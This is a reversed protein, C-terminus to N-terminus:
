FFNSVNDINQTFAELNHDKTSQEQRHLDPASQVNMLTTSIVATMIMDLASPATALSHLHHEEHEKPQTSNHQVIVDSAKRANLSFAKLINMENIDYPKGNEELVDHFWTTDQAFKEAVHPWPLNTQTKGKVLGWQFWGVDFEQLIPLLNEYTSGCQRGMWETLLMPKGLVSTKQLISRLLKDNCYAHISIIDSLQMARQDIMHALPIVEDSEETFFPDPVHWASTTLPQMPNEERAWEFVLEMLHMANEELQLKQPIVKTGNKHFTWSNGPENYLDWILVRRDNGWTSVMDRVYKEVRHWQSTDLVIDRGPSGVAGGNHLGPFPGPQPGLQAPKGSFECDDLLCLTVSIGNEQALDLFLNVRHKLGYEDSEYVIMPLNTRLSNYGYEKAWKLEQSITLPDFTSEQWMEIFNVATRPLYNFGVLFDHNKYWNWATRCDWKSVASKGTIYEEQLAQNAVSYPTTEEQRCLVDAV